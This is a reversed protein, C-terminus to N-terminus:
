ARNARRRCCGGRKRHLKDGDIHRDGRGADNRGRGGAVRTWRASDQWRAHLGSARMRRGAHWRQRVSGRLSVCFYDRGVGSTRAARLDLKMLTAPRISADFCNGHALHSAWCAVGLLTTAAIGILIAGNVRRAMLIAMLVLGFCALQVEHDGFNGIASSHKASQCRRAERQATWRVRYFTRNGGSHFAKSKRPIGNVM